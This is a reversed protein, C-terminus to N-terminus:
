RRDGRAQESREVEPHARRATHTTNPAPEGMANDTHCDVNHEQFTIRPLEQTLPRHTVALFHGSHVGLRFLRSRPERQWCRRSPGSGAGGHGLRAARTEGREPQCRSPFPSNAVLTVTPFPGLQPAVSGGAAAAQLIARRRRLPVGLPRRAPGLRRLKREIRGQASIHLLPQGALDDSRAAGADSAWRHRPLPAPMAPPLRSAPRTCPARLLDGAAQWEIERVVPGHPDAVLGDVLRQEDLAAATEAALQGGAQAAAPRQPDRPRACAPPALAEDRGLDHDALTRRFRGVSGHGAMPFSVQDEAEAARRDAPQHLAGRAEGHQQVQRAHRAMAGRGAHLVSGGQGTMAGLGHAVGDDARDGGQGLLQPPRQGPVLAGFHGFMRPEPDVCAHLDVEAIRVARPLPGGVLVGVPQQTLVERLAGVETGMSGLRDGGDRGSEICSGAFGKAPFRRGLCKVCQELGVVRLGNRGGSSDAKPGATATTFSIVMSRTDPM